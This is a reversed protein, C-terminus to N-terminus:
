LIGTAYEFGKRVVGDPSQGGLAEIELMLQGKYGVEELKKVVSKLDLAGEGVNVFDRKFRIKSKPLKQKLDKLHVLAVRKSYSEIVGNVDVGAGAGHATDICLKLDPIADLAAVIEEQTEIPSRLENHLAAIVGAKTTKKSFERLHRIAQALTKDQVSIWFLPTNSGVAWQIDNARARSYTGGNELGVRRVIQGLKAPEHKLEKPILSPEVGVGEFGIDKISQLVSEFEESTKKKGWPMTTVSLKM